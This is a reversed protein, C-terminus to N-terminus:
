PRPEFACPTRTCEDSLLDILTARTDALLSRLAENIRSAGPRKAEIIKQELDLTAAELQGIAFQAQDRLMAGIRDTESPTAALTALNRLDRLIEIQLWTGVLQNYSWYLDSREQDSATEILARLDGEITVVDRERQELTTSYTVSESHEGAHALRLNVPAMFLLLLLTTARLTVHLPRSRAM